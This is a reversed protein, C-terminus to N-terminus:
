EVANQAYNELWKRADSRYAFGGASKLATNLLSGAEKHKGQNALVNALFWAADPKAKGSSVARRLLKEADASRGAHFYVWGLTSMVDVSNSFREFNREAITLAHDTKEQSGQEVLVIALLNAAQLDNPRDQVVAALHQEAVAFNKEQRAIM